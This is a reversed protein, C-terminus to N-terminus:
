GNDHVEELEVQKVASVTALVETSPKITWQEPRRNEANEFAM